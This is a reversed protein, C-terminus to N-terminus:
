EMFGMLYLARAVVFGCLFLLAGIVVTFWKSRKYLHEFHAARKFDESLKDDQM